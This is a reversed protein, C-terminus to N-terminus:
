LPHQNPIKRGNMLRLSLRENLFGNSTKLLLIRWPSLMLATESITLNKRFGSLGRTPITKGSFEYNLKWGTYTENVSGIFSTKRGDKFTIVGAKGHILGFVDNPVVKIQLKGSKILDYLKKLRAPASSYIEEPKKSCWERRMANVAASATVADEKQMEANCVVRVCGQIEEIAEGAIELISSNFYGAIRDYSLAGKLKKNLFTSDLRRRRSSYRYIM